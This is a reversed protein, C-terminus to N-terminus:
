DFYEKLSLISIGHDMASKRVERKLLHRDESILNAGSLIASALTVADSAYLNLELMLDRAKDLTRSVPIVELFGLDAMESLVGYAESAAEKPYGARALGRVVELLAWESVILVLVGSLTDDRLKLAEAEHEEGEKFWKVLVCSDVAVKGLTM